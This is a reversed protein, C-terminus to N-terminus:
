KSSRRRTARPTKQVVNAQVQIVRANWSMSEAVLKKLMALSLDSQVEITLIVRRENM